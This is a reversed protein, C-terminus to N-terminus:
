GHPHDGAQAATGRTVELPPPETRPGDPVPGPEPENRGHRGSRLKPRRKRADKLIQEISKPIWSLQDIEEDTLDPSADRQGKTALIYVM